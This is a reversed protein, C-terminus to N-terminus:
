ENGITRGQFRYTIGWYNENKQIDYHGTSMYTIEYNANVEMKAIRYRGTGAVDIEQESFLFDYNDFGYQQRELPLEEIYPTNFHLYMYIDDIPKYKKTDIIWFLEQEYLFIWVGYEDNYGCIIGDTVIKEMESDNLQPCIYTLPNYTFIDGNLLFQNMCVKESVKEDIDAVGDKREYTVYIWIEYCINEKIKTKIDFDYGLTLSDIKLYESYKRAEKEGAKQLEIIEIEDDSKLVLKCEIIEADKKLIWGSIHTKGGKVPSSEFNAYLTYDISQPFKKIMILQKHENLATHTVTYVAVLFLVSLICFGFQLRVNRQLKQFIGNKRKEKENIEM